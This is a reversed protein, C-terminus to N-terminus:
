RTTKEAQSRDARRDNERLITGYNKGMFTVSETIRGKVGIHAGKTPVGRNQSYVWLKGTGDSIEYVGGGFGAVSGGVSNVVEGAINVEKDRFRGPDGTIDGIHTRECGALLVSFLILASFYSVTKPKM